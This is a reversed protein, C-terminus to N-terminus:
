PLDEDRGGDGTADGLELKGLSILSELDELLDAQLKGILRRVERLGAEDAYGLMRTADAIDQVRGALLKSLVLYPLTLVPLGQADRNPQAQALAEPWWPERGELIDLPTGDSTAWASGGIALEGRYQYGATRLRRRAAAADKKLVVVDLDRTSREPMYLRTAAAGVVAWPLGGLVDSLDPWRM